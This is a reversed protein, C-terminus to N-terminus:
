ETATKRKALSRQLRKACAGLSGSRAEEPLARELSFALLTFPTASPEESGRDGGTRIPIDLTKATQVIVDAFQDYWGLGRQGKKSSMARLAAEGEGACAKLTRVVELMLELRSGIADHSLAPYQKHLADRLLSLAATDHPDAFGAEITQLTVGIVEASTRIKSLRKAVVIREITDTENGYRGAARRLGWLLQDYLGPPLSLRLDFRKNLKAVVAQLDSLEFKAHAISSGQTAFVLFDSSGAM